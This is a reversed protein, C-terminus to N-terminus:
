EVQEFVVRVGGKKNAVIRLESGSKTIASGLRAAQESPIPEPAPTGPETDPQPSPEHQSQKHKPVPRLYPDNKNAVYYRPRRRYRILVGLWGLVLAGKVRVALLACVFTIIGSAVIKATIFELVPPLFVFVAGGLFLPATLLLLQTVNIPGAVKDEVTTIQAPVVATKM